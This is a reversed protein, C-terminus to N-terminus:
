FGISGGIVAVANRLRTIYGKAVEVRAAMHEPEGIFESYSQADLIGRLYAEATERPRAGSVNGLRADVAGTLIRAVERRSSAYGDRAGRLTGVMRAPLTRGEIGSIERSEERAAQVGAISYLSALCITLVLLITSNSAFLTLSPGMAIDLVAMLIALALSVFAVIRTKNL